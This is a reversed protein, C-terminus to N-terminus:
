MFGAKMSIGATTLLAVRSQALPKAVPTWPITEWAPEDPIMHGLLGALFSGAFRWPDVQKTSM